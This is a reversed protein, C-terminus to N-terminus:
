HRSLFTAIGAIIRPLVLAVVFAMVLMGIGVDFWAPALLGAGALFTTAGALRHVPRWGADSTIPWPMRMGAYTNREAEFPVVGLALLVAGLAFGTLRILDLDSGFGALLLGLQTAALIALLLTLAPDLIHQSKAFQNKSFLRGMVFFVALLVLMLLPGVGLAVNHPWLWDAVSGSWHAACRFDAPVRFLAVGTIALTVAALLLRFRTVLSTM